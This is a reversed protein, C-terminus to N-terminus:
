MRPPTLEPEGTPGRWVCNAAELAAFTADLKAVEPAEGAPWDEPRFPELRRDRVLRLTTRHLMGTQIDPAHTYPLSSIQRLLVHRGAGLVGTRGVRGGEQKVGEKSNDVQNMLRLSTLRNSQCSSIVTRFSVFAKGAGLGDTSVVVTHFDDDRVNYVLRQLDEEARAFWAFVKWGEMEMDANFKERLVNAVREVMSKGRVFVLISGIALLAENLVLEVIADVLAEDNEFALDQEPEFVHLPFQRGQVRVISHTVGAFFIVLTASNLTASVVVLKVHKNRVMPLVMHFLESYPTTRLHAEDFIMITPHEVIDGWMHLLVGATM